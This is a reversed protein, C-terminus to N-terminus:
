IIDFEFDPLMFSLLKEQNFIAEIKYKHARRVEATSTRTDVMQMFNPFFFNEGRM